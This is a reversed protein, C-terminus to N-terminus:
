KLETNKRKNELWLPSLHGALLIWWLSRGKQHIIWASVGLMIVVAVGGIVDRATSYGGGAGGMIFETIYLMVGLTVPYGLVWTLNLHRQFWNMKYEAM